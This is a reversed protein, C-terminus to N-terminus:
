SIAGENWFEVYEEVELVKFIDRYPHLSNELEEELKKKGLIKYGVDLLFSLFSLIEERRGKPNVRFYINGEIMKFLDSSSLYYSISQVVQNSHKLIVGYAVNIFLLHMVELFNEMPEFSILDVLFGDKYPDANCIKLKENELLSALLIGNDYAFYMRENAKQLMLLGTFGSKIIGIFTKGLEIFSDPLGSILRRDSHKLIFKNIIEEPMSVVNMVLDARPTLLINFFGFNYPYLAIPKGKQIYLEYNNYNDYINIFGTFKDMILSELVSFMSVNKMSVDRLIYDVEYINKGVEPPSFQGIDLFGSSLLEQLKRTESILTENSTLIVSVFTRGEYNQMNEFPKLVRITAYPTIILNLLSKFEQYALHLQLILEEASMPEELKFHHEGESSNKFSFLASPNDLIDFLSYLLLSKKNIEEAKLGETETYFGKIYGNEVYLEISRGELYIELVGQKNFLYSNILDVFDQQSSLYGSIM